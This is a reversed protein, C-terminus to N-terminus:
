KTDKEKDAHCSYKRNEGVKTNSSTANLHGLPVIHKQCYISVGDFIYQTGFNKPNHQKHGYDNDNM